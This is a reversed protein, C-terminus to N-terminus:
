ETGVILSGEKSIHRRLLDEMPKKGWGSRGKDQGERSVVLRSFADGSVADLFLDRTISEVVATIEADLESPTLIRHGWEGQLCGINIASKAETIYVLEEAGRRKVKLIQWDGGPPRHWFFGPETPQNM